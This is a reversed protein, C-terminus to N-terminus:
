RRILELIADGARAAATGPSASEGFVTRRREAFQRRFGEDYLIRRLLGEIAAPEAAGAIVGLDVFPSLNNPLGISLAPVGLVGADLAVTSNVTVIASSAALLAALSSEAPVIRVHPRAQFARYSEATEAPHPKVVVVVGELRAAADFFRELHARAEKEKTALLILMASRGVQLEHRLHETSDGPLAAVEAALEDLRASGTVRLSDGPYHGRSALYRATYQDFLLTRTPAPFAPTEGPAM